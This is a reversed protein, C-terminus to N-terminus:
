APRMQTQPRLRAPHPARPQVRREAAAEPNNWGRAAAVFIVAGFFGLLYGIGIGIWFM